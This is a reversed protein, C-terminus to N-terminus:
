KVHKKDIDRVVSVQWQSHFGFPPFTGSVTLESQGLSQTQLSHGCLPSRGCCRSRDTFPM